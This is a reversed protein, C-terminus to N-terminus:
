ISEIMEKIIDGKRYGTIRDWGAFVEWLFRAFLKTQDYGLTTDRMSRIAASLRKLFEFPEDRPIDTTGLVLVIEDRFIELQTMLERLNGEDLNDLFVGWREQSASVQEKFYARFKEQEILTEPLDAGYSGDAVGLMVNICNEKFRQYGGALSQKIRQRRQYEPLRVVLGYFILSVMSAVALDYTTKRWAKAHPLEPCLVNACLWDRAFPDEHAILILAASIAFLVGLGLDLPRRFISM